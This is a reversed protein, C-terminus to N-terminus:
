ENTDNIINMLNVTIAEIEGAISFVKGRTIRFLEKELRIFSVYYAADVRRLCFKNM